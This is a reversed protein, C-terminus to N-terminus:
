ARRGDALYHTSALSTCRLGNREYDCNCFCAAFYPTLVYKKLLSFLLNPLLPSRKSPSKRKFCRTQSPTKSVEENDDSCIEHAWAFLLGSIGGGINGLIYCVWKWGVPINWAAMSSNFIINCVGSFLIPPWRAGKFVTDSSWAYIYTFLVTVASAITPYTNIAAISYNEAKLWLSFAPQSGYNTGNNFCIYLLTLLYIHWSSFINKFTKKTYPGRNARGELTMRKKALEIEDKTLWWAKTIEPVDPFFAFGLLAIPLSIITNIIFLWQWGKYGGHGGLSYTATMLYGSFMTGLSSSSHFICSRKALEDKRYWSGIIYQMGPYFGSEALGVFFRLVYMQTATTCQTMLITMISWVVECAPIWISPRIKTLLM